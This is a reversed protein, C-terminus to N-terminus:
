FLAELDQESKAEALQSLTVKKEIGEGDKKSL